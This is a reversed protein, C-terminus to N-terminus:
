QSAIIGQAVLSWNCNCDKFFDGDGTSLNQAKIEELTHTLLSGANRGQSLYCPVIEGKENVYVEEWATCRSQAEDDGPLPMVLKIGREKCSATLDEKLASLNNPNAYSHKQVDKDQGDLLRIALQKAHAATAIEPLKRAAPATMQSLVSEVRVPIGSMDAFSSVSSLIKGLKTGRSKFYTEEDGGDISIRLLNLGSQAIRNAMNGVLRTGNTFMEVHGVGANKAAIIMEPLEKNLTPESFGCFQVIELDSFRNLATEFQALSLFLPDPQEYEEWNRVCTVCKLNCVNSTNFEVMRTKVEPNTQPTM